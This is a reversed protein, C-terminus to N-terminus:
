MGIPLALISRSPVVDCQDGVGLSDPEREFAGGDKLLLVTNAALHDVEACDARKVHVRDLSREFLGVPGDRQEGLRAM